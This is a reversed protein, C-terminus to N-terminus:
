MSIHHSSQLVFLLTILSILSPFIGHPRRAERVRSLAPSRSTPCAESSWSKVPVNLLFKLFTELYKSIGLYSIGLGLQVFLFDILFCFLVFSNLIWLKQMCWVVDREVNLVM